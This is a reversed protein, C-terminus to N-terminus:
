KILGFKDKYKLKSYIFFMLGILLWVGIILWEQWVLTYNTNPVIYMIMMAGSMITALGGVLKYRKNKFPREMDPYKKRIILYSVSVMCYSFCCAFNAANVIWVLMVRGLLPALASLFGLLLLANVPSNYKKHLKSFMPQTMNANSMAYLARSGGILFANWSTVIGCLGGIILVKSMFKSGFAKEMTDATVLGTLKMSTNIDNKTMVLGISIVIVSYFVVTLLISLIMLRGLKKLPINIEGAAQPIVDFGFFFFPTIIAIKIINGIIDGFNNGVFMQTEINTFTGNYTAGGFLILGVVAIMVTFVTQMIVSKKTGIVNILAIIVATASGILVWSAYVDFGKITYLYGFVLNPYLYQLITPFSCAEYCVVGMYSLILIWTCIYSFVSGLAMHSYIQEGGSQPMATTLEAYSLGVFYIMLGGLIFGLVTGLVGGTKIWDGSSVVWGWGIMAGFAVVMVDFTGLVKEFSSDKM